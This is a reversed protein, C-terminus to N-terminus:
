TTARAPRAGPPGSAGRVALGGREGKRGSITGRPPSAPRRGSGTLAGRARRSSRRTPTPVAAALRGLRRTRAAGVRSSTSPAGGAGTRIEALFAADGRGRAVDDLRVQDLYLDRLIAAGAGFLLGLVAAGLLLTKTRPWAPQDVPRAPELLRLSPMTEALTNRSVDAQTAKSRLEGHRVQLSAIERALLTYEQRLAPLAELRDQMEVASRQMDTLSARMSALDSLVETRQSRMAEYTSNLVETHGSAVMQDTSDMRARIDEIKRELKEIEPSGPLYDNRVEALETLARSLESELQQKLENREFSRSGTVEPKEGALFADIEALKAESGAISARIGRLSAELDLWQKVEIKEREFDILMGHEQSFEVMRNELEELQVRTSEEQSHLSEYADDAEALYRDLRERQYVEFIRNAIEPARPTSAKVVLLGVFSQGLRKIEVGDHFDHIVKAMEIQEPTPDWPSPEPPFFSEKIERYKKGAASSRWLHLTWSLFTHYVEDYSLDLDQAVEELISSALMLKTESEIDDKRFMNWELYFADRATDVDREVQFAVEAVYVPPWIAVYASVIAHASFLTTLGVMWPHWARRVLEAELGPPRQFTPEAASKRQEDSM